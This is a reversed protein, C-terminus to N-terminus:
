NDIQFTLAAAAFSPAADGSNVNKPTTLAAYKWINGATLADSGFFGYLLGWNGTPAPFTLAANNSTTGGTGTSAVTSGAAQTGAWNALSSALSVRAYGGGSPETFTGAEMATTQETWVATGDTVTGGATNPWTPEGAATTGATTCKYIRGNPTTPLVTDNLAVSASRVASSYGRTAVILGIYWTAPPTAAQARFMWDDIKNEAYDTLSPM